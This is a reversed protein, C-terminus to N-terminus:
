VRYGIVRRAAMDQVPAAARLLVDRISCLWPNSWQGIQGIRRSQQVIQETRARRQQEYARFAVVPHAYAHLSKGLVVADELAQCGGQGMNPTMPHAADGLLTIRGESWRRVPMRDAIDHHLISEPVTAAILAEIPDCWDRFAEQLIAQTEISTERGGAPANRTAFWYVRGDSLPAIGFRRGRGWYEGPRIRAHDFRTVARYSTYGAYRPEGDGVLQSRVVSRIGDAGILIDGHEVSGDEFHAQVGTGDQAVRTCAQGLHVSHDELASRLIALLEARHVVISIEGVQRELKEVSAELLPKGM